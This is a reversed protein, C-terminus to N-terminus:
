RSFSRALIHPLRTMGGSPPDIVYGTECREYTLVECECGWPYCTCNDGAYVAVCDPRAVCEAETGLAECVDGTTDPV